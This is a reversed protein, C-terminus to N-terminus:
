FAGLWSLLAGVVASGVWFALLLQSAPRLKRARIDPDLRYVSLFLLLLLALGAVFSRARVAM